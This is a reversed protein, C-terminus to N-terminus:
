PSAPRIASGPRAAFLLRCRRAPRRSRRPAFKRASPTWGNRGSITKSIRPTRQEPWALAPPAASAGNLEQGSTSPVALWFGDGQHVSSRRMATAEENSARSPTGIDASGDRRDNAQHSLTPHLTTPLQGTSVEGIRGCGTPWKSHQNGYAAGHAETQPLELSGSWECYPLDHYVNKAPFPADEDM